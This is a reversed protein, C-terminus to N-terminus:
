IKKKWTRPSLLILIPYIELRGALMNFILVWKSLINLDSFNSLPGVSAFGPGINNICTVVATFCTEFDHTDTSLILTSVAIISVYVVLFTHSGNIIDPEVKKREFKVTSVTRPYIIRKLECAANKILIIVRGIKIGGGTSGSCAGIFMLALLINRSLNPWITFDVTTFGTTSIVSAVQFSAYRFAEGISSYMNSINFMIIVAATLAIGVFWKLEESKFFEKFQGALLIYFMNFNISFLMMFITTVTDIYASDYFAMSETKMGFGGTGATSFAHLISDFLPMGGFVYLIVLIATMTIYIGYLIQATFKLKSVIKGVTPGPVEARLIYMMQTDTKPMVALVFVLVGMGGLWNSFNRWLLGSNPLMEIDALITAGTTTFGSVMEFVADSFNPIERSILFPLAGFISMFIWALGVIVLGERAYLNTKLPKKLTILTGIIITLLAPILFSLHKGDRDFISVTMPLFMLIGEIRILQGLIYFIMKYNM